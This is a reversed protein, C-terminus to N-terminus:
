ILSSFGKNNKIERKFDNVVNSKKQLSKTIRHDIGSNSVIDIYTVPLAQGIRHSRDEAQIRHSYKFENEYFIHYHSENLTLGHGGTAQTAILIRKEKRFEELQTNRQSESLDGYYLASDPFQKEIEKISYIYKCWIIIKENEPIQEIATKLTEIREHPFELLEGNRKWFGSVIQQLATFLQFIVYSSPEETDLLIEQKAQNYYENQEETLSCYVSNYLKDPLHLCEEKTIQYVYPQIKNAIKELGLSRVMLGPYKESYELHHHAFSYFSNYGLIDPSLFRMQSYLDEVGQSIPTGTLLLRYRAKKSIETLRMSRKSAYGKIYSSEDVIVFSDNDILKNLALTVRDSSSISELGIIYWFANPINADTTQEDFLYIIEGTTHKQIEFEITQKLSVPCLWVVKSIRQQRKCVLEIACRTKGTGMDMFFAGVRLPLLKEVAPFQHPMLTTVTSINRLPMDTFNDVTAKYRSKKIEKTPPIIVSPLITISYERKAKELLEQAKQTFLFGHEEAFGEVEKYHITPVEIAKRETNWHSEPLLKSRNYLNDNEGIWRIGFSNEICVIWFKQEHTWTAGQVAQAIEENTDITFDSQILNAVLESARDQPTGNTEQNLSRKWAKHNDSWSLRFKHMLKRFTENHERFSCLIYSDCYSVVAITKTTPEQPSLIM